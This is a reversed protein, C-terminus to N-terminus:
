GPESGHFAQFIVVFQYLYYFIAICPLKDVGFRGCTDNTVNKKVHFDYGCHNKIKGAESVKTLIIYETIFYNVKRQEQGVLAILPLEVCQLRRHFCHGL